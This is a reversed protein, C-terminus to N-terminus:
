QVRQFLDLWGPSWFWATGIPLSALSAMLKDRQGFADHQRVWADIADHDQPAILRLAVLVEVATEELPVDGREGGFIVVPLGPRKGDASSRLGWWAGVPDVVAVPLGAKLLEETLVAATYTKGVGRKALIAFTQTIAEVPLRLGRAIKLGTDSPAERLATVNGM